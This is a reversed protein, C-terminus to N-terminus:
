EIVQDARLLLAPPVTLGLAKATKMNIMLEFKTPQEIPLEGPNAGKLIKDVYAAARRCSDVLSPAYIMLAGRLAWDSTNSVVPVRNKLAFDIIRARHTSTVASNLVLLAEPRADSVEGLARDLGEARTFEVLAVTLGLARAADQTQRIELQRSLDGLVTVRTLKPVVEKLLELRKGALEPTALSMGTVNGGPRALSAVLRTGVPDGAFAMVIPTTTTAAKAAQAATFGFTVIVEPKAGLLERVLTPLRDQRGQAFRSDVVVNGGEVYGLARLGERFAAEPRGPTSANLLGIRHRQGTPQAEAELSVALLVFALM